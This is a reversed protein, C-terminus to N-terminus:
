SIRDNSFMYWGKFVKKVGIPKDSIPGDKGGEICFGLGTPGKYIELEMLVSGDRSKTSNLDSLSAEENGTELTCDDVLNCSTFSEDTDELTDGNRVDEMNCVASYQSDCDEFKDENSQSFLSNDESELVAVAPICSTVSPNSSMPQDPTIQSEPALPIETTVPPETVVSDFTILLESKEPNLTVLPELMVLPEPTVFPHSTIEPQSTLESSEPTTLPESTILMESTDSLKTTVPSETSFSVPLESTNLLESTVPHESSCNCSEGTEDELRGDDREDSIENEKNRQGDEKVNEDAFARMEMSQLDDIIPLDVSKIDENQVNQLTEVVELTENLEDDLDVSNRGEHCPPTENSNIGPMPDVFQQVDPCEKENETVDMEDSQSILIQLNHKEHINESEPTEDATSHPVMQPESRVEFEKMETAESIVEREDLEQVEHDQVHNSKVFCNTSEETINKLNEESKLNRSMSGTPQDDPQDQEDPNAIKDVVELQKEGLDDVVNFTLQMSMECDEHNTSNENCNERNASSTQQIENLIIESQNVYNNSVTESNVNVVNNEVFNNINNQVTPLKEHSNEITESSFDNSTSSAKSLPVVSGNLSLSNKQNELSGNTQTQKASREDKMDNLCSSHRPLSCSYKTFQDTLSYNEKIQDRSYRGGTLLNRRKGVTDSDNIDNIPKFNFFNDVSHLRRPLTGSPSQLGDSSVVSQYRTFSERTPTKPLSAMSRPAKAITPLDIKQNQQQSPMQLNKIKLDMSDRYKEDIKNVVSDQRSFRNPTAVKKRPLRSDKCDNEDSNNEAMNSVPLEM